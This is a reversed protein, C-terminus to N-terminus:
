VAITSGDHRKCFFSQNRPQAPLKWL